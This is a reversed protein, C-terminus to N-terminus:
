VINRVANRLREIYEQNKANGGQSWALIFGEEVGSIRAAEVKGYENLLAIALQRSEPMPLAKQPILFPNGEIVSRLFRWAHLHLLSDYGADHASEASANLEAITREAYTSALKKWTLGDMKAQNWKYEMGDLTFCVANLDVTRRSFMATTRPLVLRLHPLDFSGVNFGIAITGGRSDQSAGNQILWSVLEDDVVSAPQANEIEGRTFGHVGEARTDWVMEGPNMTACFYSDGKAESGDLNSHATVGIQILRHGSEIDAGSMEGDLGFFRLTMRRAEM